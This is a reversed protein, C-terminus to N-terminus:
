AVTRPLEGLPLSYIDEDAHGKNKELRETLDKTEDDYMKEKIRDFNLKGLKFESVDLDLKYCSIRDKKDFFDTIKEDTFSASTRVWKTEPFIRFVAGKITRLTLKGYDHLQSLFYTLYATNLQLINGNFHLRKTIIDNFQMIVEGLSYRDTTEDYKLDYVYGNNTFDTPNFYGQALLKLTLNVSGEPSQSDVYEASKISKIAYSDVADVYEKGIMSALALLPAIIENDRASKYVTDTNHYVELVSKFNTLASLAALSKLRIVENGYLENFRGIKMVGKLESAPYKNLIFCLCRDRLVDDVDSISGFVKPCFGNYNDVKYFYNPNVRAVGASDKNYSAKILSMIDIEDNKSRSSHNEFEDLQLTSCLDTIRFYAAESCDTLNQSNFCFKNLMAMTISKGSGKQATFFLYPLVGFLYAYYTGYSFIALVKHFGPDPHYCVKRYMEELSQIIYKPTLWEAPIEGARFKEVYEQRLSVYDTDLLIGEIINKIRFRGDIILLENPTERVYDTLRITRGDSTLLYPMEVQKGKDNNEIQNYYFYAMSDKSGIVYVQCPNLIPISTADIKVGANDLDILKTTVEDKLKKEKLSALEADRMKKDKIEFLKNAAATVIEAKKISLGHIEDLQRLTKNNLGSNFHQEIAAMFKEECFLLKKPLGGSVLIQNKSYDLTDNIYYRINGKYSLKSANYETIEFEARWSRNKLYVTRNKVFAYCETNQMEEANKMLESFPVPYSNERYYQDIDKYQDPIHLCKVSIDPLAENVKKTFEQGGQDNDFCLYLRKFQRFSEIQEQTPGGGTAVVNKVGNELLAAYDQEGEVVVAEDYNGPSYLLQRKGISYGDIEKGHHDETHLYNKTNFRTVFGYRDFYPYVFLGEPIYVQRIEDPNYGRRELDEAFSKNDTCSGQPWLM